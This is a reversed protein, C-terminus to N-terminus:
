CATLKPTREVELDFLPRIRTGIVNGAFAAVLWVWGHLSGSAIGSFYAGINCGYALRAGYGLLLGGVIAALASRLPIRWTPKFRGALSAALLAGVIIGFNMVSTVDNLVSTSLESQRAPSSWYPWSAVDAIGTTAAIKSGWLAFASTIGWPRGALALTAFNLLALAVAGAVLPWPGRLFRALGQRPSPAAAVLSGHRRRELVVTLAAIGAFFALQVALATWPGWLKVLSVPAFSPQAAWWHFHAAGITSGVIFATLTILMRTSGGGVTYLTGSACGGGLQMGIGFIFAGVVVSVGIPSVLGSVPQGFLSGSALVPFFLASAIALMVMQARLGEGRRDAIFVRWASTFGFAAHYLVLGLLAGLVYLAAQKPNIVTGVLAAGALLAAVAGFAAGQSINSIPSRAPQGAAIAHASSSM